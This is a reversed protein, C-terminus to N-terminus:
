LCGWIIWALTFGFHSWGLVIMLTDFLPSEPADGWRNLGCAERTYSDHM